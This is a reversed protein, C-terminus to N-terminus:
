FRLRLTTQLSRMQSAAIPQGFQTSGVTTNWNNFVVHNLLNTAEIRADVYFRSTPRFTRQMAGDLSFTNPGRISNRPATGWTGAAPTTYASSNLHTHGQFFHSQAAAEQVTFQLHPRRRVTIRAIDLDRFDAVDLMGPLRCVHEVLHLLETDLEPEVVEAGAVGRHLM